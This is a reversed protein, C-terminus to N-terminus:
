TPRLRMEAKDGGIARRPREGPHERAGSHTM